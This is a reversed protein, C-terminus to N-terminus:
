YLRHSRKYSPINSMPLLVVNMIVTVILIIFHKKQTLNPPIKNKYKLLVSNNTKLSFLLINQYM